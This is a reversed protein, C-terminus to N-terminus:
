AAVVICATSKVPELEVPLPKDTYTQFYPQRSFDRRLYDRTRQSEAVLTELTSRRYALDKESTNEAAYLPAGLFVSLVFGMFVIRNKM